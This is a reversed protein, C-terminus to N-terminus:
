SKVMEVATQWTNIAEERARANWKPSFSREVEWLGRLSERQEWVGVALGALFAAGLATTESVKGRVVEINLIDAQYQMLLDNVSAGGDVKLQRIPVGTDSEMCRLVDASQLAISELAARVIHARNAGRTLGTIAGRAKSDWHPAGLGVFAPVISVGHSDPVEAAVAESEAATEILKLEDRLWQIVAGAIFISGELAYEVTGDLDWAVTTLLGHHSKVPEIGTNLVLFCGTGYTNKCEGREFATQGFLAAQQDGAM